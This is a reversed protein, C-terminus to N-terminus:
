IKDDLTQSYDINNKKNNKVEYIPVGTNSDKLSSMFLSFLPYILCIGFIVFIGITVVNWFDLKIGKFKSTKM